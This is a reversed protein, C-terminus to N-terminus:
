TQNTRNMTFPDLGTSIKRTFERYESEELVKKAHKECEEWSKDVDRTLQWELYRRGYKSQYDSKIKPPFDWDSECFRNIGIKEIYEFVLLTLHTLRLKKPKENDVRWFGKLNSTDDRLIWNFEERTLGLLHAIIADLIARMRTREYPTIAWCSQWAVNELSFLKKLYLWAPSYIISIFNLRATLEAIKALIRKDLKFPDIIPCEELAFWNLNTGTLRLRLSFDFCFSNFFATFFLSPLLIEDSKEIVFFPASNGHPFDYNLSSLMSRKNTASSVHIFAIKMGPIEKKRKWFTDAGMLYQPKIMKEEFPIKKWTATRGKGSIWGKKSFDFQGIMRGEYLPLARNGSSDEWYGYNTTKFEVWETVPPFFKSHNTMDFERVYRLGADRLLITNTYIKQLIKADKETMVELIVNYLPSWRDIAERTISIAKLPKSYWNVVDQQMFATKIYDTSGNNTAILVCFKFSRHIRPFIGTRNEWSLLWEWKTKELLFKRLEFSGKDSYISSPVIFGLRGGPKLLYLGLETFLQYYNHNGRGQFNFPRNKKSTNPPYSGSFRIYNSFAKINANYQLWERELIPDGLFLEKQRKLAEQKGYSRYLPDKAQFFEKSQPKVTEWPPNGLVADFGSFSDDNSIFAEPFELEWHFYHYKKYLDDITQLARKDPNLYDISSPTSEIDDIPWFWVSCWTDLAKKQKSNIDTNKISVPSSGVEKVDLNKNSIDQFIDNRYRTLLKSFHGKEYNVATIHNVDGIERRWASFPYDQLQDLWCGVLANGTKLKHDLFNIPVDTDGIEIWFAMKALNVALPDIDLGHICNKLILLKIQSKLQTEHNGGTASLSWNKNLSSNWVKIPFNLEIIDRQNVDIEQHFVLSEFLSESLFRLTEFLFIASAGMAPDLIKLAMITEPDRIIDKENYVLPHLTRKVTPIVLEPQTYFIGTNKRRQKSQGEILGQYLLGVDEPPVTSFHINIDSKKDSIYDSNSNKVIKLLRLVRLIFYDSPWYNKEEILSLVDPLPDTGRLFADRSIIRDSRITYSEQFGIENVIRRILALLLSWKQFSERLLETGFDETTQELDRYLGNLSRSTSTLSFSSFNLDKDEVFLIVILYMVIQISSRYFMDKYTHLDNKEQKSDKQSKEDSFSTHYLLSENLHDIFLNVAEHLQEIYKNLINDTFLNHSKDIVPEFSNKAGKSM